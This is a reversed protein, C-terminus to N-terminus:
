RATEAAVSSRSQALDATREPSEAGHKGAKEVERVFAYRQLGQIPRGGTGGGAEAGNRQDSQQTGKGPQRPLGLRRAQERLAGEAAQGAAYQTGAVGGSRGGQDAGGGCERDSQNTAIARPELGGEGKPLPSLIASCNLPSM